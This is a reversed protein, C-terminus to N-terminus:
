EIVTTYYWLIVFENDFNSLCNKKEWKKNGYQLPM